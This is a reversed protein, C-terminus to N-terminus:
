GRRIGETIDRIPGLELKELQPAIKTKDGVVLITFCSPDLHHRITENLEQAQVSLIWALRKEPYDPSWGRRLVNELYALRSGASSYQCILTQSLSQRTFEVEADSLGDRYRTAESLLEQVAAGCVETHVATNMTFRGYSGTSAFGSHAGYTYGKDERLNLNIRSSFGGGLCTNAAHLRYSLAADAFPALHGIRVEAQAAGPLDILHLGPHAPRWSSPPTPTPQPSGCAPLVGDLPGSLEEPTVNGLAALIRPSGSTCLDWHLFIDDIDLAGISKLTGLFPQGAPHAEGHILGAFGDAALAQAHDSRMRLAVLRQQRCREFETELLRPADLLERLLALGEARHRDLCSFHLTLGEEGAAAAFSAGLGDVSDQFSAHDREQTGESLIEALLSAIGAHGALEELRGGALGLSLYSAELTGHAAVAVDFDGRHRRLSPVKLKPIPGSAPANRLPAEECLSAEAHEPAPASSPAPLLENAPRYGPPALESQGIPVVALAVRPRGHIYKKCVRLLEAAEVRKRDEINQAMLGPDGYLCADLGMQGARAQLSDLRRLVGGEWRNTLRDHRGSDIGESVVRDLLEDVRTELRELSVGPRPRLTLWLEGGLEATAHQITVVSALEEDYLLVKDLISAQNASLYDTLADLAVEDSHNAPVTPWVMSLQPVSVRDEQIGRITAPLGQDEATPPGVEPGRPIPGFHRRVAELAENPVFDGALVLTANNPGYWRRFFAAVDDLTAADLDEMSGIPIHHYPHEPPRMVKAVIERVLGYPRNDYNQRRENKVVERQNDLKEQTLAPLLWGMRDSELHLALELHNAPLTEFYNTRDESTTGNLSGGAAQIRQFHAGEPVNASGEFMLHEFLHAFGSRGPIERASGVHYYVYVSVMPDRHDEHLVVQLGNELEHRTYQIDM